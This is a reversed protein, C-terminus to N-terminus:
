SYPSTASAGPIRTSRRSAPRRVRGTPCASCTTSTPITSCPRSTRTRRATRPDAHAHRRALRPLQRRHRQVSGSLGQGPRGGVGDRGGGCFTTGLSPIRRLAAGANSLPGADFSEKARLAAARKPRAPVSQRSRGGEQDTESPRLNAGWYADAWDSLELDCYNVYAGGSVYARMSDYIAKVADEHESTGAPGQWSTYYQVSYLTGARRAFATADASVNGIAGGYADCLIAVEGTKGALLADMLTAIAGDSLAVLVYDSKAKM